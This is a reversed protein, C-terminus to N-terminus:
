KIWKTSRTRDRYLGRHEGSIDSWSHIPIEPDLWEGKMVSFLERTHFIDSTHFRIRTSFILYIGRIDIRQHDLDGLSIGFTCSYRLIDTKRACIGLLESREKRSISWRRDDRIRWIAISELVIVEIREIAVELFIYFGIMTSEDCWELSIRSFLPRVFFEEVSTLLTSKPILFILRSNKEITKLLCLM